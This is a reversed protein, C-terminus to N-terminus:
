KWFDGFIGAFFKLRYGLEELVFDISPFLWAADTLLFLETSLRVNGARWVTSLFYIIGSCRQSESATLNLM